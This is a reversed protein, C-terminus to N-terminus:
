NMAVTLREAVAACAADLRQVGEAMEEDALVLPPVVRVVSDGAPIVLLKEALAAEAFEAPPVKLKVGIM